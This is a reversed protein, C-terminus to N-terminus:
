IVRDENTYINFRNNRAFGIMTIGANKALRIAGLTPAANSIVIPVRIKVIKQIIETSMRCSLTVVKNDPDIQNEFCYGALKDVANHRGIDEFYTIIKEPSCLAASHLAGTKQFLVSHEWHEHILSSVQGASIKITDVATKTDSIEKQTALFGGSSGKVMGAAKLNFLTKAAGPALNVYANKGKLTLSSIEDNSRIIDQTFLFGKVLYEMYSNSFVMQFALTDNIHINLTQEEIVPDKVSSKSNKEVRIVPVTSIFQPESM